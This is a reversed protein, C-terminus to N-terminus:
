LKYINIADKPCAQRCVGCGWCLDMDVGMLGDKLRLAGFQCKKQCSKCGVCKEQNVMARYPTMMLNDKIAYDDKNKLNYCCCSCCNCMGHAYMSHVLGERDARKLIEVAEEKTVVKCNERDLPSNMVPEKVVHICVDTKDRECGRIYSQCNCQCVTYIGEMKELKEIAEELPTVTEPPEEGKEIRELRQVLWTTPDMMYASLVKYDEEPMERWLQPECQIMSEMRTSLEAVGYGTEGNELMKKDIIGRKYAQRLEEDSYQNKDINGEADSKNIMDWDNETYIYELHGKVESPVQLNEYVNEERVRM